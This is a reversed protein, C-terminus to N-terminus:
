FDGFIRLPHESGRVFENAVKLKDLKEKYIKLVMLHNLRSQSMTSRLYTKVRKM